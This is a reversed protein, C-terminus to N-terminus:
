YIARRDNTSKQIKELALSEPHRPAYLVDTMVLKQIKELALSEPHRGCLFLLRIM